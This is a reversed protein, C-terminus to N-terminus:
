IQLTLITFHYPMGGVMEIRVNYVLLWVFSGVVSFALHGSSNLLPVESFFISNIFPTLLRLIGLTIVVIDLIM